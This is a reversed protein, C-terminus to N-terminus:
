VAGCEAGSGVRRSYEHHKQDSSTARVALVVCVGNQGVKPSSHLRSNPRVDRSSRVSTVTTDHDFVVVRRASLHPRTHAPTHTNSHGRDRQKRTMGDNWQPAHHNPPALALVSGGQAHCAVPSPPHLSLLGCSWSCMPVRGYLSNPFGSVIFMFGRRM